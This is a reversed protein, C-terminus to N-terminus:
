MRYQFEMGNWNRENLEVFVNGINVDLNHSFDSNTLSKNQHELFDKPIQILHPSSYFSSFRDHLFRVFQLKHLILKQKLKSHQNAKLNATAIETRDKLFAKSISEFDIVKAIEQHISNVDVCNKPGRIQLIASYIKHDSHDLKLETVM